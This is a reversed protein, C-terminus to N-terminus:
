GLLIKLITVNKDQRVINTGYVNTHPMAKLKISVLLLQNGKSTKLYIVFTSTAVIQKVNLKINQQM